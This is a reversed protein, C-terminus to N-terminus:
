GSSCARAHLHFVTRDQRGAARLGDAKVAAVLDAYHKEVDAATMEPDTPIFYINLEMADAGAEQSRSPM